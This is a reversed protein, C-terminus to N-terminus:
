DAQPTAAAAPSGDIRVYMSLPLKTFFVSNDYSRFSTSPERYDYTRMLRYGPPAPSSSSQVRIMVAAPGRARFTEGFTNIRDPAVQVPIDLLRLGAVLGPLVFATAVTDGDLRVVGHDKAVSAVETTFIRVPDFQASEIDHRPASQPLMTALLVAVALVLGPAWFKAVLTSLRAGVRDRWWPAALTASGWLLYTWAVMAVPWWMARNIPSYASLGTSPLSATVYTASLVAVGVILASTVVQRDRRRWGVVAVILGGALVVLATAGRLPSVTPALNTAVPSTTAWRPPLAVMDLMRGIGYRWGFTPGVSSGGKALLWLNGGGNVQDVIPGSWCALGVVVSTVAVKCGSSGQVPMERVRHNRKVNVTAIVLSIVLVAAVIPTSTVHTQAAFSGFLIAWPWLWPRRDLAVWVLVLFAALPLMASFPNFPDRVTRLSVARMFLTLAVVALMLGAPGQRRWWAWCIASISAASVLAAGVVAGYGPAGFLEVPLAFAWFMLPGPHHVPTGSYMSVSTPMGLLPPHRSLTASSLATVIAWDGTPTWRGRIATFAAALPAIVVLAAGLIPARGALRLQSM